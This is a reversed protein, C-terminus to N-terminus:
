LDVELLTVWASTNGVNDLSRVRVYYHGTSLTPLAVQPESVFWEGVGGTEPGVYVQYGKVGSGNDTAPTWRVIQNRGQGPDLLTPASPAETDGASGSATLRVGMYENCIEHDPFDYGEVFALPVGYRDTASIGQGHFMQFHLHPNDPAAGVSGVRGLVTGRAIFAGKNFAVRSELHSYMTYYGHGHDLIVTGGREGWWWYTGDAAAHVPAGRTRGDTNVLDFANDDYGTHTGCNYGQIVKWTEGAPIPLALLPASAAYGANPVLVTSLVGCLLALAVLRRALM